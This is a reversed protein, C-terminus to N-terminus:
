LQTPETKGETDMIEHGVEVLADGEGCDPAHGQGGLVTEQPRTDHDGTSRQWKCVHRRLKTVDEAGTGCRPCHLPYQRGHVVSEHRLAHVRERFRKGCLWCAYPKEGTHTLLHLTLNDQRSFGKNCYQCAFLREGTHTREHRVVDSRRNSSYSCYACRHNGPFSQPHKHQRHEDLFQRTTFLEGCMDCSIFACRVPVGTASDVTVAGPGRRKGLLGKTFATNYAVLLEEGAIISRRTRYYIEGDKLIAVLNQEQRSPAYNVYHMWSARHPQPGDVLFVEGSRRVQLTHGSGGGNDVKVCHFPGFHLGKPLPKFAFVGYQVGKVSSESISLGDFLGNKLLSLGESLVKPCMTSIQRSLQRNGEAPNVGVLQRCDSISRGGAIRPDPHQQRLHEQIVARVDELSLPHDSAPLQHAATALSDAEENGAIGCHGPVWQARVVCANRMWPKTATFLMRVNRSIVAQSVLAYATHGKQTAKRKTDEFSGVAVLKKIMHDQSWITVLMESGEAYTPASGAACDGQHAVGYNGCVDERPPVETNTGTSRALLTTQTSQSAWEQSSQIGVERMM